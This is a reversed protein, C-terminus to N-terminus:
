RHNGLLASLGGIILFIPWLASWSLDFLFVAMMVIMGAAASILGTNIRGNAQYQKWLGTLMGGLPIFWFLVWWHDFEFGTLNRLLLVGGVGILVAGMLWSGPHGTVNQKEADKLDSFNDNM